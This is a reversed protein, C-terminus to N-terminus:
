GSVRCGMRTNGVHLFACRKGERFCLLRFSLGDGRRNECRVNPSPNARRPPRPSTCRKSCELIIATTCPLCAVLCYRSCHRGGGSDGGASRTVRLKHELTFYTFARCRSPPRLPPRLLLSWVVLVVRVYTAHDASASRVIVGCQYVRSTRTYTGCGSGAYPRVVLCTLRACPPPFGKFDRRAGVLIELSIRERACDARAAGRISERNRRVM